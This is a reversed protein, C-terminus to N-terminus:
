HRSIIIMIVVIPSQLTPPKVNLHHRLTRYYSLYTGHENVKRRQHQRVAYFM